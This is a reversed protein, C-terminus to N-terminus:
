HDSESPFGITPCVSEMKDPKIQAPWYEISIVFLSKDGGQMFVASTVTGSGAASESLMVVYLSAHKPTHSPETVM